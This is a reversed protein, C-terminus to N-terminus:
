RMSSMRFQLPDGVRSTYHIPFTTRPISLFGIVGGRADLDCGNPLVSCRSHPDASGPFKAEGEAGM